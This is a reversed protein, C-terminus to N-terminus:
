NEPHIWKNRWKQLFSPTEIVLKRELTTIVQTTTGTCVVVDSENVIAYKFVLKTAETPVYTIKVKLKEEYGVMKKYSVQLDVIPLMYGQKYFDMYGLDYKKGFYERADEFYRVYRGHWVIFLSDVDSFPIEIDKTATIENM